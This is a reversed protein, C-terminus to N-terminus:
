TSVSVRTEGEDFLTVTRNGFDVGFAAPIALSREYWFGTSVAIYSNKGLEEIAKRTTVLGEDPIKRTKM